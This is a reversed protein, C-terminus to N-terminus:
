VRGDPHPWLLPLSHFAMPLLMGQRLMSVIASVNCVGDEEKRNMRWAQSLVSGYLTGGTGIMPIWPVSLSEAYRVLEGKRLLYEQQPFINPNYFFLVPEYGNALLWELIAASCPACCCHLLVRKEM